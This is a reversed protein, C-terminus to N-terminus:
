TQPWLWGRRSGSVSSFSWCARGTSGFQLRKPRVAESPLSSSAVPPLVDDTGCLIPESCRLRDAPQLKSLSASM